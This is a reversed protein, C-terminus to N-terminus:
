ESVETLIEALSDPIDVQTNNLNSYQMSITLVGAMGADSMDASMTYRVTPCLGVTFRCEGEAGEVASADAFYYEGTPTIYVKNEESVSGFVSPVISIFSPFLMDSSVSAVEWKSGDLLAQDGATETYPTPNTRVYVAGSEKVLAYEVSGVSVARDDTMRTTYKVYTYSADTYIVGDTYTQVVTETEDATVSATRAYSFSLSYSKYTADSAATGAAVAATEDVLTKTADFGTGNIWGGFVSGTSSGILKEAKGVTNGHFMTGYVVTGGAIALSLILGITGCIRGKKKM